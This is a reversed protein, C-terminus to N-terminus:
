KQSISFIHHALEFIKNKLTTTYHHSTTTYECKISVFKQLFFDGAAATRMSNNISNLDYNLLFGDIDIGM